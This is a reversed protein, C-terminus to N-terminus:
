NTRVKKAINAAQKNVEQEQYNVAKGEKLVWNGDVLVSDVQGSFSFILNSIIGRKGYHPTLDVRNLNILTLDAKKGEELSGIEEELGLVRAAEITMLDLVRQETMAEPNKLKQLLSAFKAEEFLNLNNNSAAGDTALCM